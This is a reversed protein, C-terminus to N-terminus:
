TIIKFVRGSQPYQGPWFSYLQNYRYVLCLGIYTPIVYYYVTYVVNYWNLIEMGDSM